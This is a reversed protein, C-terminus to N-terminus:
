AGASTMTLARPHRSAGSELVGLGQEKTAKGDDHWSHSTFSDVTSDHTAHVLVLDHIRHVNLHFPLGTCPGEGNDTNSGM